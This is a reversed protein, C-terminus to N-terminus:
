SGTMTARYAAEVRSVLAEPDYARMAAGMGNVALTRALEGDFLVRAVAQAMAAHDGVPVLLASEGHVVLKPVFGVPTSVLPLGLQLAEVAVLPGSEWISSIVLVDAAAMQDAANDTAALFDVVGDLGLQSRLELLATRDPGEGIVLGRVNADRLAALARLLTPIDKQPHLRAVALVLKPEDGIGLATRTEARTREPSPRPGSPPIVDVAATGPAARVQTGIAESVAIVRDVRSRLGKELRRLVAAQRGAAEDLVVNHITVVLPPRHRLTSALWGAKLGHAHILAAGACVRRLDRRARAADRLTPLSFRAPVDVIAGQSGVSDMVGAPGAVVVPWGRARLTTALHAVHRRIGGTSPGLLLVVAGASSASSTPSDLRPIPVGAILHFVFFGTVGVLGAVTVAVIPHSAGLANAVVVMVIGSALAIAGSPALSATLGPVAIRTRLARLLIGSGALYLLSHAGALGAAPNSDSIAFAIGTVPIASAAVGMSVLAPTRADDLAYFARTIFLFAGFGLLGPAFAAVAGAVFAAGDPGVAGIRLRSIPEALAISAAVGLLAFFGIVRLGRAVDEGVAGGEGRVHRGAMGPFLATLVPVSFLAHPLLFFAYAVEFASVAGVARNGFVLVCVIVVQTSALYLAAWGARRALGVVAPHRFSFSLRPRAPTRWAAALPLLCFAAVGVTTGGGLVATEFGSLRLDAPGGDHRSAFWLYAGIVVVNNLLPALAPVAFRHQANLVATGVSGAAYLVLQPIFFRLLTTALAVQEARRGDDAVGAFIGRALLPAGLVGLVAVAGLAVTAVGLIAGSARGAEEDGHRHRWEVITPILVAQLAGAALLEFLVNPIKNSSQYTDHLAGIGLVASVVIIRAVGSVRAVATAAAVAIAGRGANAPGDANM